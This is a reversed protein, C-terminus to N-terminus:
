GSRACGQILLKWRKTFAVGGIKRFHHHAAAKPCQEPWKSHGPCLNWFQLPHSIAGFAICVLCPWKVTFFTLSSIQQLHGAECEILWRPKELPVSRNDPGILIIIYKYLSSWKHFIHIPRDCSSISRFILPLYYPVCNSISSYNRVMSPLM